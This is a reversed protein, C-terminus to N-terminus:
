NDQSHGDKSQGKNHPNPSGKGQKLQSSNASGFERRKQKFKHEIKNAYRYTTGLSAIELFEMETQIYRHLCGHYKLVLHREFEKIGLKTRLTHFINTFDPVTQDREQLLTTWRTYQDEYSGVHYYQEKIADWFSGWKPAVAFIASEEIARQEFYTDWWDKVHPIVKLLAFTIKKRDSFNHVSFYGELLNLWKDVLNADILGKFLPIDFNVQVKFPPNCPRKIFISRRHATASPDTCLQGDNQEKTM